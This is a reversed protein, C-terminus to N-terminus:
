GQVSIEGSLLKQLLLDRVMSLTNTEAVSETIKDYLNKSVKSYEMLVPATPVLISMPRFTQKSIEAFTSGSARQKIEDMVSNAWQLVYEPPLRKNCKMAIFGQNVATPIKALVLYGVPARSSMLVTDAPLLGSSIKELGSTTIKRETNLLVKDALGSLDKPTTWHYTGGEWFEENKTSPTGGGVVDVEDGITSWEWGKPLLSLNSDTLEDPFLAANANLQRIQEPTSSEIWADLEEDTKGSIVRMAARGPDQGNQKAEIKAKVPEFDVFWSKFIAQAIHELTQNIQRNLEIKDDLTGLIHAIARQEEPPPIPIEIRNIDRIPLQPQASGTRLASVQAHFLASRVFLYLYRPQLAPTQARLIVMGSNIRIHDFPVSDDFYATNGVTGRTTLVVDNRILKGKRLSADKEATIFACDSFKFGVTTVNGANLFLCHGTSSFEAQNPYNTGRDGDIIELPAKELSMIRWEGAM